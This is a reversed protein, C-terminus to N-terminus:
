FCGPQNVGTPDGGWFSYATNVPFLPYDSLDVQVPTSVSCEDLYKSDEATYPASWDNIDNFLTKYCNILTYQMDVQVKGANNDTSFGFSSCVTGTYWIGLGYYFYAKFKPVGM